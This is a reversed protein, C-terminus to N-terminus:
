DQFKHISQKTFHVKIQDDKKFELEFGEEELKAAALEYNKSRVVQIDTRIVRWFPLQNDTNQGLFSEAIQKIANGTRMPCAVDVGVGNAIRKAILDITAVKGKPIERIVEEVMEVDPHVMKGAGYYKQMKEPVDVIKIDKM